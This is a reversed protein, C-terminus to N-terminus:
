ATGTQQNKHKSANKGKFKFKKFSRKEPLDAVDPETAQIHAPLPIKYIPNGLFAEIRKFKGRDQHNIFTLAVGTTEARATRGIRHIYDEVDAPVDFNLVLSIGVIDIGRSIVDTGVLIQIKKNKFDLLTQERERQELDSHISAVALGLKLLAKEIEKVTVKKSSFILASIDKKEAMLEQILKIKNGDEIMYAAQVIGEAPKSVALNIQQPNKLIKQSLQRIKDPMTASFLLTQRKEPLYKIIRDIDEYFGMDLMRDAEDLILYELEDAKVYGLNLHSIMRGPTAIVIEVGETLAKRQVDWLNGEGGGYVTVSSIPCFYGFGEVQQDIQMALERTPVIILCKFSNMGVHRETLQHIIPLLYAATKGTGTQACAILDKGQMILPIAQEQIPTPTEFGMSSLGQQLDASLNFDLFNL